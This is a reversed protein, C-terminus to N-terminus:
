NIQRYLRYDGFGDDMFIFKMNSPYSWIEFTRGENNRPEVEVSEPKGFQIYVMGRDSKWGPSLVGFHINSYEVRIYFETLLENEETDPTPDQEKWYNYLFAKQDLPPMKKLVKYDKYPLITSMVNMLMEVDQFYRDLSTNVFGIDISSYEDGISTEFELIGMWEKDVPVPIIVFGLEDPVVQVSDAKIETGMDKVIYKINSKINEQLLPTQMKLYLTDVDMDIKDSSFRYEGEIRIMPQIGSITNIENLEVDQSKKWEHKSDNDIIMLSFLYAGKPLELSKISKVFKNPDRTDEYYYEETDVTWTQHFVQFDSKKDIVSLKYFVSTVFHGQEKQFIFYPNPSQVIVDVTFHEPNRSQFHNIWM